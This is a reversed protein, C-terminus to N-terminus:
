HGGGRRVQRTKASTAPARWCRAALLSNAYGQSGNGDCVKGAGVLDRYRLRKKTGRVMRRMQVITDAPRNNHHGAFEAVYRPLHKASMRHYTGDYGRKLMAWFSEIGNIHAQDRIYEGVSHRVAEHDPLGAYSAHEDTYVTAGKAVRRYGVDRPLM